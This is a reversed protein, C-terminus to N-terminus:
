SFIVEERIKTRMKSMKSFFHAYAKAVKDRKNNLLRDLSSYDPVWFVWMSDMDGGIGDTAAFIGHIWDAEQVAKHLEVAAHVQDPETDITAPWSFEVNLYLGSTQKDCTM